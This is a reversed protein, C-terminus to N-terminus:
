PAPPEPPRARGSRGAHRARMSLHEALALLRNRELPLELDAMQLRSLAPPLSLSIVATGAARYTVLAGGNRVPVRSLAIDCPATLLSREVVLLLPPEDRAFQAGEDLSQCTVVRRGTTALAQALGELLADDTGIVLLM